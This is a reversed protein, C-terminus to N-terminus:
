DNTKYKTKLLDDLWFEIIAYNKTVDLHHEFHLKRKELFWEYREFFSNNIHYQEHLYIHWWISFILGCIFGIIVELSTFYILLLFVPIIPIAFYWMVHQESHIWKDTLLNSPRYKDHHGLAHTEYIINIRNTHGFLMHFVTQVIAVFYYTVIFSSLTIM